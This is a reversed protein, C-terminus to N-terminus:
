TQSSELMMEATGAPSALLLSVTRTLLQETSQLPWSGDM